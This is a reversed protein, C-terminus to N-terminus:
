SRAKYPPNALTRVYAVVDWIQADSLTGGWPAMLPSKGVAAGGLKIVKFLFDDELPNMLDGDCHKAPKPDLTESLPGDGCGKPGHCTACYLAYQPAGRAPDGNGAVVTGAAPTGTAAGPAPQAAPEPPAPPPPAPAAPSPSPAPQAPVEPKSGPDGCAAFACLAIFTLAASRAARTLEFM